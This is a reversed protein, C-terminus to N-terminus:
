QVLSPYMKLMNSLSYFDKWRLNSDVNWLNFLEEVRLKGTYVKFIKASTNPKITRAFIRNIQAWMVSIEVSVNIM